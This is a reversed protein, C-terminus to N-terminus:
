SSMHRAPSAASCTSRRRQGFASELKAVFALAGPTLIESFQPSVDARIELETVQEVMM